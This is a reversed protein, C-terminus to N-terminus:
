LVIAPILHEFLCVCNLQLFESVSWLANKNNNVNVGVLGQKIFIPNRLRNVFFISNLNILVCDRM